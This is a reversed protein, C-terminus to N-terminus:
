PLLLPLAGNFISGPPSPVYGSLYEELYSMGNRDPDDDADSPDKPDLGHSLEYWDPIGDGDDDSDAVTLGLAAKCEPGCDPSIDDPIGDGDTDESVGALSPFADESDVVGDFDSDMLSADECADGTGDSDADEQLPNPFTPCNDQDNVLFDNDIDLDCANGLGDLDYDLQDANPDDPCNDAADVVGDGDNDTDCADGDGDGDDDRDLQDGNAVGLCNDRSDTVGDNDADNDCANGLGDGDSDVQLPNDILPCNDILDPFIDSDDNKDCPDGQGDDDNDAQEIGGGIVPHGSVVLPCLDDGDPITDGDDDDDCADGVGDGDTDLQDFNVVDVCNDRVDLIEDNDADAGFYFSLDGFLSYRGERAVHDEVGLSTHSKAQYPAASTADQDYYQHAPIQGFIQDLADDFYKAFLGKLDAAFELGCNSPSNLTDVLDCGDFDLNTLGGQWNGAYVHSLRTDQPVGSFHFSLEGESAMVMRAYVKGNTGVVRIEIRPANFYIPAQNDPWDPPMWTFPVVKVESEITLPKGGIEAFLPNWPALGNGTMEVPDLASMGAPAPIGLDEYTPAAEINMLQQYDAAILRNLYGTTLTMSLDFPQGFPSIGNHFVSEGPEANTYLQTPLLANVPVVDYSQKLVLGDLHNLSSYEFDLVSDFDHRVVSGTNVPSLLNQLHEAQSLGGLPQSWTFDILGLSPQYFLELLNTAKSELSADISDNTCVSDPISTSLGKLAMGADGDDLVEVMERDLPSIGVTFAEPRSQFAEVPYDANCTTCVLESAVEANHCTLSDALEPIADISAEDVAQKPKGPLCPTKGETYRIEFNALRLDVKALLNNFEVDSYLTNSRDDAISLDIAALTEVVQTTLTGDLQDFCVEFDDAGPLKKVCAKENSACLLGCAAAGVPGAACIGGGGGECSKKVAKYTTFLTVAEAYVWDWEETRKMLPIDNLPLCLPESFTTSKETDVLPINDAMAQNFDDISPYPLPEVHTNELKDFASPALQLGLPPDTLESNPELRIDRGDILASSAAAVVINDKDRLQVGIPIQSYGAENQTSPQPFGMVVRGTATVHPVRTLPDTAITGAPTWTTGDFSFTYQHLSTGLPIRPTLLVRIEGTANFFNQPVITGHQPPISAGGGYAYVRTIEISVDCEDGKGDLDADIQFPNPVLPCNDSADLVGDGDVDDTGPTADCVNGQLDHPAFQGYDANGQNPNYRGPCNDCVNGVGDYDDDAQDQNAVDVCNDYIDSVCDGDTDVAPCSSAALSIAPVLLCLSFLVSLLGGM